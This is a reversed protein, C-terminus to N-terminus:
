PRSVFGEGWPQRLVRAGESPGTTRRQGPSAVRALAARELGGM